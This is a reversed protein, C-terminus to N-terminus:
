QNSVIDCAYKTFRGVKSPNGDKKLPALHCMLKGGWSYSHGMIQGTVKSGRHWVEVVQGKDLGDSEAERAQMEAEAWERDSRTIKLLAAYKSEALRLDHLRDKLSDLTLISYETKSDM